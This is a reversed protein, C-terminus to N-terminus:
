QENGPKQKAREYTPSDFADWDPSNEKDAISILREIRSERSEGYVREHARDIVRQIDAGDLGCLSKAAEAYGWIYSRQREWAEGHSVADGHRYLEESMAEIKTLAKLKQESKM